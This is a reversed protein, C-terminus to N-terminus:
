AIPKVRRNIAAAALLIYRPIEEGPWTEWNQFARRSCGIQEAAETQTLGRGERWAKLPNTTPQKKM